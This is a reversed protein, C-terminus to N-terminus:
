MFRPDFWSGEQQFGGMGQNMPLNPMGGWFVGGSEGMSQGSGSNWNGSNQGMRQYGGRSYGGSRQGMKQMKHLLRQGEQISYQMNEIWERVEENM